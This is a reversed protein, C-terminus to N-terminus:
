FPWLDISLLTKRDIHPEAEQIMKALKKRDDDVSLLRLLKERICRLKRLHFEGCTARVFRYLPDHEDRGKQERQLVYEGDGLIAKRAETGNAM